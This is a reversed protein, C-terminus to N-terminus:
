ISMEVVVAEGEHTVPQDLKLHRAAERDAVYILEGQTPNLKAAPLHSPGELVHKLARAKSEGIAMVYVNRAHNIVPLTLSVRSHKHRMSQTAVVWEKEAFLEVSEPFLSAIHGDVGLGLTILDFRPLQNASMNFFRQLEKAYQGASIKAHECYTVIPHINAEPINVYNLVLDKIMMFNSDPHDFGVFREDTLFIHTKMWLAVEDLNSLKCYFEIPSKGGTLAAVFRGHRAISAHGIAAWKRVLFNTLTFPNEFIFLKKPINGTM